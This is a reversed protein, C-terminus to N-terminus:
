IEEVAVGQWYGDGCNQCLCNTGVFEFVCCHCGGKTHLKIHSEDVWRIKLIVEKNEM